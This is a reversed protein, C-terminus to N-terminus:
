ACLSGSIIFSDSQNSCSPVQHCCHPSLHNWAVGTRSYCPCNLCTPSPKTVWTRNNRQFERLHGFLNSCPFTLTKNALSKSGPSHTARADVRWGASMTGRLPSQIGQIPCEGGDSVNQPGQIHSSFVGLLNEPLSLSRPEMGVGPLLPSLQTQGPFLDQSALFHSSILSAAWYLYSLDHHGPRRPSSFQYLLGLLQLQSELSIGSTM